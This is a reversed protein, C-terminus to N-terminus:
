GSDAPLFELVVRNLEAPMELNPLHGAGRMVVLEARPIGAHLASAMGRMDPTDHEGVVVLAPLGMEGLRNVAPPDLPVAPDRHLWHWGSYGSIVQTLLGASESRALSRAFLPDRLWLERAAEVGAERALRHVARQLGSAEATWRYGGLASDALVLSRTAGPYRLAFDVAVAGGLSLGCLSPRPQVGLRELLVSLDQEHSYAEGEVPMSSRGHGRLDYRITRFHRAFSEFQPDWIRSDLSFGHLLAVPPGEGAEEYWLSGGGVDVFGSHSAM